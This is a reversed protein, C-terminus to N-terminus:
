LVGVSFPRADSNTFRDFHEFVIERKALDIKVTGYCGENTGWGGGLADDVIEALRDLLERHQKPDSYSVLAESERILVVDNVHGEDGFGDYEIMVETAGLEEAEDFLEAYRDPDVGVPRVQEDPFYAYHHFTAQQSAVDIEVTGGAGEGSEYWGPDQNDLARMTFGDLKDLLKEKLEPDEYFERDSVKSGDSRTLEHVGVYHAEGGAGSYSIVVSKIGAEHLDAYVGEYRQPKQRKGPQPPDGYLIHDADNGGRAM